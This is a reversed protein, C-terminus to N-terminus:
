RGAVKTLYYDRDGCWIQEWRVAAVFTEGRGNGVHITGLAHIMLSEIDQVTNHSDALLRKPIQRLRQLGREDTSSLTGRWGFWSFRDWKGRHPSGNTGHYHQRLRKGLNMGGGVTQGVYYPGYDNYLVYIGQQDWFNAVELGPLYKGVRGLLERHRGSEEGSWDVDEAHWFMGYARIFGARSTAQRKLADQAM